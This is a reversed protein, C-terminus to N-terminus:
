KNNMDFILNPKPKMYSNIGLLYPSQSILYYGREVTFLWLTVLIKPKPKM